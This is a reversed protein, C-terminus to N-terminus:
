PKLTFTAGQETADLSHDKATFALDLEQGPMWSSIGFSALCRSVNLTYTLTNTASAPQDLAGDVFGASQGSPPPTPQPTLQSDGTSFTNQPCVGLNSVGGPPPGGFHSVGAAYVLGGIDIWDVATCPRNDPPPCIEGAIPRRQPRWLKFTLEVDQDEDPGDAIPFGNGHTGPGSPRFGEPPGSYPGAIPYPVTTEGTEDGFSVLAPITAFAFQLTSLFSACSPSPAPPPCRSEEGSDTVHEILLDGTGIQSVAPDLGPDRARAGHLLYMGPVTGPGPTLRGFGDRDADFLGGPSGPFPTGEPPILNTPFRGTGGPSCYLLGGCDLETAAGPLIEFILRGFNPLAAEIQEDTFAPSNANVTGYIPLALESVVHFQNPSAGELLTRSTVASGRSAVASDINDLILDGDDDIDVPDPLGDSDRDGPTSPRLSRALVRGFRGAGIPAGKQARAKRQADTFEEPLERKVKAYGRRGKVTVKGLKAGGKVGLIARRGANEHGMVIPGAYSGDPARLHLTVRGAPPRLRFRGRKAGAVKAKGNAALAIVTYGPKSLKGTIPRPKAGAPPSAALLAVAAGICMGGLRARARKTM